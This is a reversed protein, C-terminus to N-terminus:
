KMQIICTQSHPRDAYVKVSTVRQNLSEFNINEYVSTFEKTKQYNELMLLTSNTSDPYLDYHGPQISSHLDEIIFIGKPGLLKHLHSLTLQQDYMKHSGDDIIVDFYLDMTVCMDVFDQLSQDSSQDMKHLVIRPDKNLKLFKDAGEFVRGNGQVGEFTDAGHITGKGFYEAWMKMSAGFFVGVELMRIEKDRLHGLEKDYINCFNHTSAKDTGCKMGIKHLSDRSAM